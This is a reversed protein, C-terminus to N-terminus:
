KMAEAKKQQPTLFQFNQAGKNNKLSEEEIALLENVM